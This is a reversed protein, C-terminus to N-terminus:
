TSIIPTLWIKIECKTLTMLEQRKQKLLSVKEQSEQQRPNM